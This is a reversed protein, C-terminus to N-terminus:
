RKTGGTQPLATLLSSGLERLQWRRLEGIEGLESLTGPNIRAIAELVGNPCLVGPPLDYRQALTNRAAKLRELRTEFALDPPQRQRRKLEPLDREAIQRGREVAALIEKGRREVQDAGIGRVTKLAALDQPPSKAMLLMPENNLIRFPAKDTRRAMEERWQFLERLIALGRGHLAKAGKLRLYGPEEPEGLLRPAAGLVEFEEEAWEL